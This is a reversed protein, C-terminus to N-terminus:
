IKQLVKQEWIDKDVKIQEIWTTILRLTVNSYNMFMTGSLLEKGDKMHYAFDIGKEVLENFLIPDQQIKADCDVYVIPCQLKYLANQIIKAKFQTNKQWNGQNEIMYIVYPLKFQELTGILYQCEVQYPTDKTFYGIYVLKPM